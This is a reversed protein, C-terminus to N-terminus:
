RPPPVPETGERRAEEAERELQEAMAQLARRAEATAVEVATRGSGDRLGLLRLGGHRLVAVAAEKQGEVAARHLM